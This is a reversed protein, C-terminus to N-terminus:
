HAVDHCASSALLADHKSNITGDSHSQFKACDFGSLLNNNESTSNCRCACSKTMKGRNLGNTRDRRPCKNKNNVLLSDWAYFMTILFM